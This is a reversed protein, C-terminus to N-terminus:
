FSAKAIKMREIFYIVAQRGEKELAVYRDVIDLALSRLNHYCNMPWQEGPSISGSGERCKRRWLKM